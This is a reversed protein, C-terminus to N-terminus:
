WDRDSGQLLPLLDMRSRRCNPRSWIYVSCAFHLPFQNNVARNRGRTMDSPQGEFRIWFSFKKKLNTTKLFLGEFSATGNPLNRLIRRSASWRGGPSFALARSYKWKSCFYPIGWKSCDSLFPVSVLTAHYQPILNQLSFHFFFLSLFYLSYLLPLMRPVFFYYSICPSLFLCICFFKGPLPKLIM